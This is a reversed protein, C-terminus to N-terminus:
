AGRIRTSARYRVDADAGQQAIFTVNLAADSASPWNEFRFNIEDQGTMVLRYFPRTGTNIEPDVMYLRGGIVSAAQHPRM